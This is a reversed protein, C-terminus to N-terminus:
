IQIGERDIKEVVKEAFNELYACLNKDARLRGRATWTGPWLKSVEPVGWTNRSDIYEGVTPVNGGLKGKVIQDVAIVLDEETHTQLDMRPVTMIEEVGQRLLLYCIRPHILSQNRSLRLLVEKDKRSGRELIDLLELLREGNRELDRSEDVKRVGAYGVEVDKLDPLNKLIYNKTYAALAPSRRQGRSCVYIIKM